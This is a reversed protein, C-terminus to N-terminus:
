STIRVSPLSDIIGDSAMSAMLPDNRARHLDGHRLEKLSCWINTNKYKKEFLGLHRIKEHTGEEQIVNSCMVYDFPILITNGGNKDLPKVSVKKKCVVLM